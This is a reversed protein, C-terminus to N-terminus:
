DDGAGAVIVFPLSRNSVDDFGACAVVHVTITDTEGVAGRRREEAKFQVELFLGCTTPKPANQRADVCKARFHYGAAVDLGFFIYVLLNASHKCAYMIKLPSM